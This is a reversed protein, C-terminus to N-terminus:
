EESPTENTPVELNAMQLDRLKQLQSAIFRLGNIRELHVPFTEKQDVVIKEINRLTELSYQYHEEAEEKTMVEGALNM